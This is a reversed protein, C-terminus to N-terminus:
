GGGMFTIIEVNDGDKLIFDEWTDRKVIELNVELVIGKPDLKLITILDKLSSNKSLEKEKKNLMIKLM